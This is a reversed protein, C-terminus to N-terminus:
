VFPRLSVLDDPPTAFLRLGTATPPAPTTPHLPAEGFHAMLKDFAVKSDTTLPKSASM